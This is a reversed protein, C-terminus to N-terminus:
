ILSKLKVSIEFINGNRRYKIKVTEGGKTLISRVQKHTIDKVPFSNLEIVEDGIELGSLQAPSNKIFDKVILKENDNSRELKGGFSTVTFKEDILHNPIVYLEKKSYNLTMDFRKLIGNGILGIAKKNNQAGTTGISLGSPIETFSSDFLDIKQVRCVVTTTKANSTGVRGTVSFSKGVKNEINNKKVFPTNFILNPQAGTDVLLKGKFSEKGISINDIFIFPINQMISFKHMKGFGSPDFNKFSYLEIQNKTYNIKTVYNSLIDYGIIGSITKLFVRKKFDKRDKILSINKIQTKGFTITNHQYVDVQHIGAAGTNISSFGNSLKLNDGLSKSILTGGAGTDFIFLQNDLENVKLKILITNNILEFPIEDVLISKKIQANCSTQISFLLLLIISNKKM